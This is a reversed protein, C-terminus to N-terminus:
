AGKVYGIELFCQVHFPFDGFSKWVKNLLRGVRFEGRSEPGVKFFRFSVNCLNLAQDFAIATFHYSVQLTILQSVVSADSVILSTVSVDMLIDGEDAGSLLNLMM